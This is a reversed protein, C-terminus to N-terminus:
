NDDLMDPIPRQEGMRTVFTSTYGLESGFKAGISRLYVATDHRTQALSTSGEKRRGNRAAIAMDIATWGWSNVKNIDAGMEVLKKVNALQGNQAAHGLVARDMRNVDDVYNVDLKYQMVLYELLIIGNNTNYEAVKWLDADIPNIGEDIYSKITDIDAYRLAREYTNRDQAYVISSSIILLFLVIRKMKRMKKM